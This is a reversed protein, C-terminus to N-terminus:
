VPQIVPKVVPEITYVPNYRLSKTWLAYQGSWFITQESLKRFM